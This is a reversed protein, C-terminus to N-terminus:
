KKPTLFEAIRDFAAKPDRLECQWVVLSQWGMRRLEELKRLDRERNAEVKATWYTSNSKPPRGWRCDHGHWFCGHVFIAKQRSPFCIDPSGPLDRRHLRYRYGQRHLERRVIMEPGTNKSRVKSMIKSRREPSVRDAM